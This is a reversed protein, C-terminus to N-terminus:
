ANNENREKRNNCVICKYETKNKIMMARTYKRKCTICYEIIFSEKTLETVHNM